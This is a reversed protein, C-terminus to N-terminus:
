VCILEVWKKMFTNLCLDSKVLILKLSDIRDFGIKEVACDFV